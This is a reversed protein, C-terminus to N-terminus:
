NKIMKSLSKVIEVANPNDGHVCVTDSKIKVPNGQFTNITGLDILQKVRKIIRQPNEIVAGFEKRSMLSLDDLYM